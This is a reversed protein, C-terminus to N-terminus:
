PSLAKRTWTMVWNVEWTAGEDASFSQEWTASRDTIQHWRYTALIPRGEFEDPGQAEFTRDPNWRGSVPAQLYGTRSNVWYITWSEDAPIYVRISTGAFGEDPYLMEDVSISGNHLTTSSAIAASEYWENSGSLPARLRRNHVEWDGVLFDFDTTQRPLGHLTRPKNL